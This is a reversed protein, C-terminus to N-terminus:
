TTFIRRSRSRRGPQHGRRAPGQRRDQARGKTSRRTPSKRPTSARHDQAGHTRSGGSRPASVAHRPQRTPLALRSRRSRPTRKSTPSTTSRASPERGHHLAAAVARAGQRRAAHGRLHAGTRRHGPPQRTRRRAGRAAPEPRACTAASACPAPRNSRTARRRGGPLRAPAPTPSARDPGSPTRAKRMRRRRARAARAHARSDLAARATEPSCPEAFRPVIGAVPVAQAAAATRAVRRRALFWGIFGLQPWRGLGLLSSAVFFTRGSRTPPLITSIQLAILPCSRLPRVITGATVRTTLSRGRVWRPEGAATAAGVPISGTSWGQSPRSRVVLRHRRPTHTNHRPRLLPIFFSFHLIFFNLSLRSTADSVPARNLGFREADAESNKCKANHM